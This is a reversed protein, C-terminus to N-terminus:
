SFGAFFVRIGKANNEAFIQKLIDRAEDTIQMIM